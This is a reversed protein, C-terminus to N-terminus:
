TRAKKLIDVFKRYRRACEATQVPRLMGKWSFLKTQFSGRHDFPLLFLPEDFGRTKM